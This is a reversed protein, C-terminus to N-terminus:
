NQTVLVIAAAAAAAVLTLLVVVCGCGSCGCGSCGKRAPLGVMRRVKKRRGSRTLPVGTARSIRSKLGSIGLARRPSFSFGFKRGMVYGGVHVPPSDGEENREALM